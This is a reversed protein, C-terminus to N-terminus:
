SKLLAEELTELLEHLIWTHMEQIRATNQGPIIIEHEAMGKLRGGDKGILALTHLGAANAAQVARVLNESNGSSSFAVLFDGTQGLAQVQREFVTAYDWDNAICTLIASDANLCVAPLARRRRLYQGVLEEVLHLADCASGGNGCALVKHGNQLCCCFAEAANGLVPLLAECRDVTERLEHLHTQFLNLNM